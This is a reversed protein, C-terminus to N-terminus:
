ATSPSMSRPRACTWRCPLRQLAEAIVVHLGDPYIARVAENEREHQFENWVVVSIRSKM